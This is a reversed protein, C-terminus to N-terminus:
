KIVFCDGLRKVSGEKESAGDDIHVTDLELGLGLDLIGHQTEHVEDMTDYGLSQITDSEDDATQPLHPM